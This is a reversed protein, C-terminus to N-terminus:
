LLERSDVLDCLIGEDPPQAPGPGQPPAQVLPIQVPPVQASEATMQGQM